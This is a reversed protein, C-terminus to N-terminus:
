RPVPVFRVSLASSSILAAWTIAKPRLSTSPYASFAPGFPGAGNQGDRKRSFFFRSLTFRFGYLAPVCPATIPEEGHVVALGYSVLRHFLECVFFTFGMVYSLGILLWVASCAPTRHAGKLWLYM